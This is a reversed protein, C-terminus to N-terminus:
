ELRLSICSVLIRCQWEHGRQELYKAKRVEISAEQNPRLKCQQFVLFKHVSLQSVGRSLGWVPLSCLPHLFLSIFKWEECKLQM